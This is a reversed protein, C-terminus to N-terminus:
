ELTLDGIFIYGPSSASFDDCAQLESYTLKGQCVISPPSLYAKFAEAYIRYRDQNDPTCFNDLQIILPVPYNTHNTTPTVLTDREVITNTFTDEIDIRVIYYTNQDPQVCDGNLLVKVKFQAFVSTGLIVTFLILIFKKM